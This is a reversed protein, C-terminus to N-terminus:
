STCIIFPAILIIYSLVINNYMINIIHLVLLEYDIFQFTVLSRCKTNKNTQKDTRKKKKKKRESDSLKLLFGHGHIVGFIRIHTEQVEKDHIVLTLFKVWKDRNM